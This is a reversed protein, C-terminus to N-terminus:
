PASTSHIFQACDPLGAFALGCVSADFRQFRVRSHYPAGGLVVRKGDIEFSTRGVLRGFVDSEGFASGPAEFQVSRQSELEAVIVADSDPSDCTSDGTPDFCIRGAYDEHYTAGRYDFSAGGAGYSAEVGCAEAVLTLRGDCPRAGQDDCVGAMFAYSQVSLVITRQQVACDTLGPTPVGVGAPIIRYGGHSLSTLPPTGAQQFPPAHAPLDRANPPKGHAPVTVALLALALAITRSM